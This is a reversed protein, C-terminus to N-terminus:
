RIYLFVDHNEGAEDRLAEHRKERGEWGAIRYNHTVVRTGPRLQLQLQRRLLANSEPLLYMTVVTAESLDAKTADMRLFRVLRAVGAAAAAAVSADVLARDLDIGVGRSGYKRAASIVIRGDGSGIDYLVDGPKLGALELMTDVVVAPTPVYPALDVADTRDHSGLFVDLRDNEDIRFCYPKGLELSYTLIRLGNSFEIELPVSSGHRAIDGPAVTFPVARGSMGSVNRLTYSVTDSTVNRLSTERVAPTAEPRAAPPPAAPETPRCATPVLALGAGAFFLALFFSTRKM